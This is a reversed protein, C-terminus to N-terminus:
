LSRYLWPPVHQERKNLVAGLLNVGASTLSATARQAVEWRVREAEVVLVVGDLLAGFGTPVGRAVAPLDVIVLDYKERLEQVARILNPTRCARDADDCAAGSTLVSLNPIRSSQLVEVLRVRSELVEQLGPGRDVDFLRDVFPRSNNADVLVTNLQLHIAARMALEAAITTVGEGAVCSTLGIARAGSSTTPLSLGLRDLLSLCEESLSARYDPRSAAEVSVTSIM